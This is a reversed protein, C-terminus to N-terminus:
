LQLWFVSNSTTATNINLVEFTGVIPWCELVCGLYVYMYSVIVVINPGWQQFCEPFASWNDNALLPLSCAQVYNNLTAILQHLLILKLQYVFWASKQESLGVQVLAECMLSQAQHYKLSYLWLLLWKILLTVDCVMLYCMIYGIVMSISYEM